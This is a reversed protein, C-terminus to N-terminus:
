PLNKIINTLEATDTSAKGILFGDLHEIDRLTLVLQANVSGGYLLPATLGQQQLTAALSSLVADIHERSAPTTGIAWIPEYAILFSPAQNKTKFFLCIEQLAKQLLHQTDDQTLTGLCLIPTLGATVAQDLKQMFLTPKKHWAADTESHGILCYTCGLEQVSRASIQGTYPGHEYASCDQAALACTRQPDTGIPALIDYSPCLVLSSNKTHALNQIHQMHEKYWQMAQSASLFMKWNMIIFPNQTRM